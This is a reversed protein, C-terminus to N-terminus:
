LLGKEILKARHVDATAYDKVKVADQWLTFTEKDEENLTVRDIHIGLVYLMKELAIVVSNVQTFDIERVRLTANLKKTADFVVKFANPTNLDDQMASLFADFLEKDYNTEDLVYDALAMKVYSQKLPKSVKDLESRTANITDDNLNLPARYHTNLMMWRVVNEGLQEVIDKVWIVNGLSKSM